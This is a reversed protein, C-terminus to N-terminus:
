CPGRLVWQVSVKLSFQKKRLTPTRLSSDFFSKKLAFRTIKDM